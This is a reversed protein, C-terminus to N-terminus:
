APTTTHGERRSGFQRNPFCPRIQAIQADSTEDHRLYLVAEQQAGLWTWLRPLEAPRHETVLQWDSLKRETDSLQMVVADSRDRAVSGHLQPRIAARDRVQKVNWGLWALATFATLVTLLTALGFQYSRRRIPMPEAM